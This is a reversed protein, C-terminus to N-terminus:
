PKLKLSSCHVLVFVCWMGTTQISEGRFVGQNQALGEENDDSRGICHHHQIGETKKYGASDTPNPDCVFNLYRVAANMGMAQLEDVLALVDEEEQAPAVEEQMETGM